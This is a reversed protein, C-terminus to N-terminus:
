RRTRPRGSRAPTVAAAAAFEAFEAVTEPTKVAEDADAPDQEEPEDAKGAALRVDVGGRRLGRALPGIEAYSADLARYEASAILAGTITDTRPYGLSRDDVALAWTNHEADRVCSVARADTSLAAAM